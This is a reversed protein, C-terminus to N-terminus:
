PSRLLCKAEIDQDSASVCMMSLCPAAASALIAAQATAAWAFSVATCPGATTPEPACPHPTSNSSGLFCAHGVLMVKIARRRTRWITRERARGGGGAGGSPRNSAGWCRWVGVIGRLETVRSDSLSTVPVQGVQQCHCHSHWQSPQHCYWWQSPQHPCELCAPQTTPPHGRFIAARRVAVGPPPQQLQLQSASPSQSTATTLQNNTTPQTPKYTTAATTTTTPM